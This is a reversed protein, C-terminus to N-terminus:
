VSPTSKLIEMVMVPTEESFTNFLLLVGAMSYYTQTNYTDDVHL